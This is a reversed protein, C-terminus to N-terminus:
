YQVSVSLICGTALASIFGSCQQQQVAAAAAAAAAAATGSCHRQESIAEPVCNDCVSAAALKGTEHQTAKLSM